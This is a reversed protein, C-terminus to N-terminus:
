MYLMYLGVCKATCRATFIDRHLVTISVNDYRRGALGM